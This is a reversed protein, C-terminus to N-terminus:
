HQHPVTDFPHDVRWEAEVRRLTSRVLAVVSMSGLVLGTFAGLLTFVKSTHALGDLWMGAWVGLGVALALTVGFQSGVALSQTVTLGPWKPALPPADRPAM